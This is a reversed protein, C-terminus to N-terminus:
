TLTCHLVAEVSPYHQQMNEENATITIAYKSVGRAAIFLRLVAANIKEIKKFVTLLCM